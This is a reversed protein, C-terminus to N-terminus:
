PRPVTQCWDYALEVSTAVDGTGTHLPTRDVIVVDIGASRAAQIKPYTMTGGSNKTVLVRVDHKRLLASEGEVTYPGRDLLLTHQAPLATDPPDVSRILYHREPDFAFPSLEQRGTTVFVCQGPKALEVVKQAAASVSPVRYWRDGPVEDWGPRSLILLPVDAIQCAAVANASMTRAFPHTADVVLQIKRETLFGVLGPVGGFGGIVYEGAPLAPDRVRGALSSVVDFAPDQDLLAALSRAESTGGLILVRM